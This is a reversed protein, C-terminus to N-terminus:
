GEEEEINEIERKVEEDSVFINKSYIKFIEEGIITFINNILSNLGKMAIVGGLKKGYYGFNFVNLANSIVAGIGGIKMKKAQKVIKNDNVQKVADVTNLVASIRLKKLRRLIPKDLEKEIRAMIYYDLKILEEASLEAIPHKSNPYFISSINNALDISLEKALNYKSTMNLDQSAEKYEDKCAQIYSNALQKKEDDVEISKKKSAKSLSSSYLVLITVVSILIGLAIGFVLMIISSFNINAVMNKFFERISDFVNLFM